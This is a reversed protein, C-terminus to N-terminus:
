KAAEAAQAREIARWRSVNRQHEEYTSAFVHGGQGNAVFFLETTKPPDLVAALAARGPNAIPGPPLGDVRYTNYPTVTVLETMTLGRGLPRGKSIGYITTPDSELRMGQRLRNLYVAAIRPRESPLATEKEVISALTVAEEPTKFPLGAQRTAWLESLLKQQALEMRRIVENRQEGREVQYTDPLIAGEAPADVAGALVPQALVADVVMDSTWGEPVSVVHRVVKGARIDALVRGMSAHSAFEYEGAKLDHTAGTLKVAMLFIQSSGIVGARKLAHAIQTVGSGRELTVNTTAGSPAAPGPGRYTWLAWGGALLVVLLLAAVLGGAIRMLGMRKRM